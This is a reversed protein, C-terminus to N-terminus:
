ERALDYSIIYTIKEGSVPDTEEKKENSLKLSEDRATGKYPGFIYTFPIDTKNKITEPPKNSNDCWSEAYKYRTETIDAQNSTAEIKMTYTGDDNFVIYIRSDNVKVGYIESESSAEDIKGKVSNTEHYYRRTKGSPCQYCGDEIEKETEESITYDVFTRAYVRTMKEFTWFNDSHKEAKYHLKYQKDQENCFIPYEKKEDVSLDSKVEVKITGKYPCIEYKLLEDFFKQALTKVGEFAGEDLPSQQIVNVLMKANSMQMCVANMFVTQGAQTMKLSVLYHAGMAGALDALTNDDGVGLLQKEREHSLVAVINQYSTATACPFKDAITNNFEGEFADCFLSLKDESNKDQATIKWTLFFRTKEAKTVPLVCIILLILLVSKM